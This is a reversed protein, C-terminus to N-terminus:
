HIFCTMADTVVPFTTFGPLQEAKEEKTGDVPILSSDAMSLRTSLFLNTSGRGRVGGYM